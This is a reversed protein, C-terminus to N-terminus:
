HNREGLKQNYKMKTRRFPFRYLFTSGYLLYDMQRLADQKLTLLGDTAICRAKFCTVWRNCHMKIQNLYGMQRLTNQKLTLLWRDCHINSYLLYGMQWLAYQKLILLGDTTICRKSTLLGDTAICKVNFYTVWRNCHM